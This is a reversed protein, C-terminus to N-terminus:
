KQYRKKFVESLKMNKGLELEQGDELNNKTKTLLQGYKQMQREIFTNEYILEYDGTLDQEIYIPKQQEATKINQNKMYVENDGLPQFSQRKKNDKKNQKLKAQM